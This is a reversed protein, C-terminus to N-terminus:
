IMICIQTYIMTYLENLCYMKLNFTKSKIETQQNLLNCTDEHHYNFIAYTPGVCGLFGLYLIHAVIITFVVMSANQSQRKCRECQSIIECWFWGRIIWYLFINSSNSTVLIFEICSLCFSLRIYATGASAFHAKHLMGICNKFHNYWAIGRPMNLAVVAPRAVNIQATGTALPIGSHQCCGCGSCCERGNTCAATDSQAPVNITTVQRTIFDRWISSQCGFISILWKGKHSKTWTVNRVNSTSFVHIACLTSHIPYMGCLSM